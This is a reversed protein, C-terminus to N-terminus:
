GHSPKGIIGGMILGFVIHGMLAVMAKPLSGLFLGQGIIPMFVLMAVLYILVLFLAGRLPAPGPMRSIGFLLYTIPYVVIGNVFHAVVGLTHSGGLLPAVMVAVDMPHGIIHPAMFKGMLTFVVTGILGGLLAKPLKEKILTKTQLSYTNM